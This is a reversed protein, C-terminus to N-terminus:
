QTALPLKLAQLIDGEASEVFAVLSLDKRKWDNKLPINQDLTINAASSALLERVVYEHSLRKGANEGAEIRTELNNETVAVFVTAGSGLNGELQYNVTMTNDSIKASLQITVPASEANIAPLRTRLLNKPRMDQGNLVLQPTYITKAHNRAGMLRQRRSHEPNAFRDKWGIYDWYDVHLAIPVVEDPAYGNNELQAIWSEAPPCSHCGQSTYLELLAVRNEGSRASFFQEAQVNSTLLTLSLAFLTILRM